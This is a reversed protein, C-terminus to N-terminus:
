KYYLIDGSKFVSGNSSIGIVIACKAERNDSGTTRVAIFNKISNKINGFLCIAPLLFNPRLGSIITGNTDKNFIEPKSCLFDIVEKTNELKFTGHEFEILTCNTGLSVMNDSDNKNFLKVISEKYFIKNDGLNSIKNQFISELNPFIYNCVDNFKDFSTISKDDHQSSTIYNKTDKIEKKIVEKKESFFDIKKLGFSNDLEASFIFPKNLPSNILESFLSIAASLLFSKGFINGVFLDFSENANLPKKYFFEYNDIGWDYIFNQPIYRRVFINLSEKVTKNILLRDIKSIKAPIYNESLDEKSARINVIFGIKQKSDYVPFLTEGISLNYKDNYFIKLFSIKEKITIEEDLDLDSSLLEECLQIASNFNGINAQREIINLIDTITM